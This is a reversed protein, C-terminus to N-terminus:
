ATLHNLFNGPNQGHFKIPHKQQSTKGLDLNKMQLFTQSQSIVIKCM